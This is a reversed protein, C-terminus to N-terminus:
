EDSGGKKVAMKVIDFFKIRKGNYVILERYVKACLYALLVLILMQIFLSIIIIYLPVKGLLYNVPACFASVIPILSTAYAMGGGFVSAVCSVMYGTLVVMTVSLTSSQMDETSSCATGMIGALLSITMYAIVFSIVIIVVTLFGVKIDGLGFNSLLDGVGFSMIDNTLKSSIAFSSIMIAIIGFVYTAIALIKGIILALPKVSVMLLEVLKSSKEEVIARVIYSVSMMSFMSLLISYIYQIVFSDESEATAYFSDASDSYVNFGGTLESLKEDDLGVSSYVTDFILATIDSSVATVEDETLSTDGSAEVSIKYGKLLDYTLTLLVADDFLEDSPKDARIIANPYKKSDSLYSPVDLELDTENVFYIAGIGDYTEIDNGEGGILLSAIPMVVFSMLLMMVITLVSGKSKLLQVLTFSYVSGTGKLSADHM